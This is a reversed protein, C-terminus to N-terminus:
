YCTSFILFLFEALFFCVKSLIIENLFPASFNLFEKTLSFILFIRKHMIYKIILNIKILFLTVFNLDFKLTKFISAFSHYSAFVKHGLIQTLFNLTDKLKQPKSDSNNSRSSSYVSSRLKCLLKQRAKRLVIGSYQLKVIPAHGITTLNLIYNFFRLYNLLFQAYRIKYKAM